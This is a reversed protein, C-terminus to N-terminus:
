KLTCKLIIEHKRKELNDFFVDFGPFMEKLLSEAQNKIMNEDVNISNISSNLSSEIKTKIFNITRQLLHDNM